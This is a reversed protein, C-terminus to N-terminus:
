SVIVYLDICLFRVLITFGVAVALFASSSSSVRHHDYFLSSIKVLALGVSATVIHVRGVNGNVDLCGQVSQDSVPGLM